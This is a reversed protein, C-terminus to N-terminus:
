DGMLLKNVGKTTSTDAKGTDSGTGKDGGGASDSGKGSGKGNGSGKDDGSSGDGGSTRISADLVAVAKPINLFPAAYTGKDRSDNIRIGAKKMALEIQDVTAHPRISRIAAFAGAVHPAAMSTGALYGFKGKPMGSLIDRNDSKGFGGPAMLDVMSGMNSYYSIVGKKDTAGVTVANSVCSPSGVSKRTGSNGSAFVTAINRERLKNIIVYYAKLAADCNTDKNFPGGISINIAAIDNRTKSLRLVYDLGALMSILHSGVADQGTRHSFVQLAIIKAEPAVGSLVKGDTTKAYGAAIGAVHTGHHCGHYTCPKAAGKGIQVNKGNPCVTELANPVSVSFCAEQIVRGGFFPHGAEVGTDMVVVTTGKGTGHKAHVAAGGIQGLSQFLLAEMETSPEIRDVLPDKSLRELDDKDVNMSVFPVESFRYLNRESTKATSEKGPLFNSLFRDQVQAVENSGASEAAKLLVIVPALKGGDVDTVLAEANDVKGRLSEALGRDQAWAGGMGAVILGAAVAGFALGRTKQTMNRFM